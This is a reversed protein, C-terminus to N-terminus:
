SPKAVNATMTDERWLEQRVALQLPASVQRHSQSRRSLTPNLARRRHRPTRCASPRPPTFPRKIRTRRPVSRAVVRAKGAKASCDAFQALLPRSSSSRTATRGVTADDHPLADLMRAHAIAYAQDRTADREEPMLATRLVAFPASPTADPRSSNFISVAIAVPGPALLRNGLSQPLDVVPSHVVHAGQESSDALVVVIDLSATQEGERQEDAAREDAGIV